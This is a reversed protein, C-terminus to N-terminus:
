ENVVYIYRALVFPRGELHHRRKKLLKAFFPLGVSVPATVQDKVAWKEGGGRKRRVTLKGLVEPTILFAFAAPRFSTFSHDTREKDEAQM